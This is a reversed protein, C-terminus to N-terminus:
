GTTKGDVIDPESDVLGGVSPGGTSLADAAIGAGDGAIELENWAPSVM